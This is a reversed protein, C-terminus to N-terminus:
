FNLFVLRDACKKWVNQCEWNQVWIACIKSFIHWLPAFIFIVFLEVPFDFYRTNQGLNAWNLGMIANKPKKRYSIQFIILKVRDAINKRVNQHEWIKILYGSIEFTGETEPSCKRFDQSIKSGSIERGRQLSMHIKFKCVFWVSGLVHDSVSMFWNLLFYHRFIRDDIGQRQNWV